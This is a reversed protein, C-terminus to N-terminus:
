GSPPKQASPPPVFGQPVSVTLWPGEGGAGSDDARLLELELASRRVLALGIWLTGDSQPV